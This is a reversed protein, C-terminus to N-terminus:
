YNVQFQVRLLQGVFQRYSQEGAKSIATTNTRDTFTYACTLEMQPNFQWELGLEWEDIRSFPANREPKYGGRYHVYRAFPFLTGHCPTLHRYLVMAYGGELARDIVATQADNLGPGRGVNWEAQFGLPQPYWVLTAALREDLIGQPNGTELTGGPRVPPGIGLPSIPSSLVTYKGTYGQIAAELFQGSPLQMPLALRAVIHLNENQEVLSGGQGDYAGFGFVGYNGSGKLGLDIVQKFFEQAYEPTWYFFVGVDRENRVASNLADSRDLPLRNSSSQMNEWGYPVKSLGVRFRYEKEKDLYCDAYWDRLQAFYTADPSGPVNVAFDPQLYVAMHDSIDGSLILRARRILFNQNAGVSKDSPNQAPASGPLLVMTENLRFQTYGRLGFKEFWKKPKEEKPPEALPAPKAPDMTELFGADGAEPVPARSGATEASGATTHTAHVGGADLPFAVSGTGSGLDRIEETDAIRAVLAWVLALLIWPLLVRQSMSALNRM